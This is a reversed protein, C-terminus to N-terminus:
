DADSQRRGAPKGVMGCAIAWRVGPDSNSRMDILASVAVDSGLHSLAWAAAHVVLVDEDRLHEIAISVCEDFHPQKRLADVADWAAEDEYDGQLSAQFLGADTRQEVM